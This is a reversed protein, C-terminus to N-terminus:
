SLEEITDRTGALDAIVELAVDDEARVTLGTLGM